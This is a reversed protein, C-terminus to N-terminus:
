NNFYFEFGCFHLSFPGLRDNYALEVLRLAEAFAAFFNDQYGSSLVRYSTETQNYVISVIM